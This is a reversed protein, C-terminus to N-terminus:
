FHFYLSYFKHSENPNLKFRTKIIYYNIPPNIAFNFKVIANPVKNCYLLFVSFIEFTNKINQRHGCLQVVAM